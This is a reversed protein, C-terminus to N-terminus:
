PEWEPSGHKETASCLYLSGGLLYAAVLIVGVLQLWNPTGHSLGYIVISIWLALLLIQSLIRKMPQFEKPREPRRQFSVSFAFAVAFAATV